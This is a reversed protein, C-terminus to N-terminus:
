VSYNGMLGAVVRELGHISGIQYDVGEPLPQGDLPRVLVTLMGLSRATQLNRPLDDAYIVDGPRAQLRTLAAQYAGPQPKPVCGMALIDIVDSFHRRVGLVDMVREAHAADANTFIAKRLPLRALMGNLTPDAQIYEALPVDHVYALYDDIDIEHEAMLGLMTLGYREFYTRKLAAAAEVELGLRDAIYDTIRQGIEPWLRTAPAYLTDDLDCLLHTLPM